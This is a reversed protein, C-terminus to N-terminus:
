KERNYSAKTFVVSNYLNDMDCIHYKEKLTDLLSLVRSHLPSMSMKLYKPEAPDNRFYVQYAFGDDCLVDRQFGGGETEYAIRLKDRHQGQFGITM